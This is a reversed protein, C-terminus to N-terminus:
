GTLVKPSSRDATDQNVLMDSRSNTTKSTVSQKPDSKVIVNQLGTLPCMLGIDWCTLDDGSYM